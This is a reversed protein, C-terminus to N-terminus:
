PDVLVDASLGVADVEDHRRLELALALLQCRAFQRPADRRVVATEDGVQERRVVDLRLSRRPGARREQGAVGALVQQLHREAV